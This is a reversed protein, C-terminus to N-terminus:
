IFIGLRFHIFCCPCLGNYDKMTATTNVITVVLITVTGQVLVLTLATEDDDDANGDIDRSHCFRKIYIKSWSSM